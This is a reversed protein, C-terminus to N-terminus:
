KFAKAALAGLLALCAGVFVALLSRKVDGTAIRRDSAIEKTEAEVNGIRLEHLEIRTSSGVLLAMVTEHRRDQQAAQKALMESLNERLESISAASRAEHATFKADLAAAIAPPIPRSAPTRSPM